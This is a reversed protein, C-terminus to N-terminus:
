QAPAGTETEGSEEAGHAGPQPVAPMVFEPNKLTFDQKAKQAREEPSAPQFGM